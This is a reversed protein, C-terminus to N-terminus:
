DGITELIWPLSNYVRTYVGPHGPQGCPHQGWSVVGQLLGDCILPGGSDGQ